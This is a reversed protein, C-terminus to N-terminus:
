LNNYFNSLVSGTIVPSSSSSYGPLSTGSMIANNAYQAGTLGYGLSNIGGLSQGMGGYGGGGNLASNFGQVEENQANLSRNMANTQNNAQQQAVGLMGQQYNATNWDKANELNFMNGQQALNAIQMHKNFSDSDAQWGAQTGAGATEAAADIMQTPSSIYRRGQMAAARQAAGTQAGIQQKANTTAQDVYRQRNNADYGAALSAADFMTAGKIGSGSGGAGGYGSLNFVAPGALKQGQLASMSAPNSVDFVGGINNQTSTSGYNM